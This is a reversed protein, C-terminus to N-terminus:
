RPNAFTGFKLRRAMQSFPPRDGVKEHHNKIEQMIFRKKGDYADEIYPIVGQFTTGKGVKGLKMKTTVFNKPMTIVDGNEDRIEKKDKVKPPDPMHPFPAKVRLQVKKAPKFDIDHGADKFGDKKITRM